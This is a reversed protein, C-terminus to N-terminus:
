IAVSLRYRSTKQFPMSSMLFGRCLGLFFTTKAYFFNLIFTSLLLVCSALMLLNLSLLFTVRTQVQITKRFDKPEDPDEFPYSGVLMVYLTVGCSWVDAIQHLLLCYSEHTAKPFLASNGCALGDMFKSLKRNAQMFYIFVFHRFICSPMANVTLLRGDLIDSGFSISLSM